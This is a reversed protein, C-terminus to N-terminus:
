SRVAEGAPREHDRLIRDPLFGVSRYLAQSAPYDVDAGIIVYSMGAAAFRRLGELLLADDLGQVLQEEVTGRGTRLQAVADIV